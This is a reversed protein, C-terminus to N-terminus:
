DLRQTKQYAAILFPLFGKSPSLTRFNNKCGGEFGSTFARRQCSLQDLLQHHPAVM